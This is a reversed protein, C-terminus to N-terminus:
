QHDKLKVAWLQSSVAHDMSMKSVTVNRGGGELLVDCFWHLVGFHQVYQLNAKFRAFTVFTSLTM